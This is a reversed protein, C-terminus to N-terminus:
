WGARFIPVPLPSTGSVVCLADDSYSEYIGMRSRVRSRVANAFPWGNQPLIM